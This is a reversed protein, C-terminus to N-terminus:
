KHTHLGSQTISGLQKEVCCGWYLHLLDPYVDPLQKLALLKLLRSPCDKLKRERLLKEESLTTPRLEVKHRQLVRDVSTSVLESFLLEKVLFIPIFIAGARIVHPFPCRRTFMFTELHSLLRHLLMRVGEFALWIEHDQCPETIRSNVKSKVPSKPRESEKSKSSWDQLLAVPSSLISRSIAQRVLCHLESFQRGSGSVSPEEGSALSVNAEGLTPSSEPASPPLSQVSESPLPFPTPLANSSSNNGTFQTEGGTSALKMIKYKKFMFSKSSHFGGENDPELSPSMLPSSESLCRTRERIIGPSPTQFQASCHSLNRSTLPPTYPPIYSATTPPGQAQSACKIPSTVADVHRYPQFSSSKHFFSPALTQTHYGMSQTPYGASTQMTCPMRCSHNTQPFFDKTRQTNAATYVSKTVQPPSCVTSHKTTNLPNEKIMPSTTLKPVKPPSGKEACNQIKGQNSPPTCPRPSKKLRLDLVTEEAPEKHLSNPKTHNGAVNNSSKNPTVSCYKPVSEQTSPESSGKEIEKTRVPSSSPLIPCTSGESKERHVKLLPFPHPATGELYDKYPALSFVDNIVPMPPSSPRNPRDSEPIMSNSHCQVNPSHVTADQKGPEQKEHSTRCQGFDGSDKGPALPSQRVNEANRKSQQVCVGVNNVSANVDRSNLGYPFQLPHRTNTSLLTEQVPPHAHLEGSSVSASRQSRQVAMKRSSDEHATVVHHDKRSRPSVHVLEKNEKSSNAWIIRDLPTFRSLPQGDAHVSGLRLDRKAPALQTERSILRSCVNQVDVPTTTILEEREVFSENLNKSAPTLGMRLDKNVQADRVVHNENSGVVGERALYPIFATSDSYNYLTSAHPYAVGTSSYHPRTHVPRWRSDQIAGPMYNHHTQPLPSFASNIRRGASIEGPSYLFLPNPQVFSSYRNIFPENHSPPIPLSLSANEKHRCAANLEQTSTPVPSKGTEPTSTHASHTKKTTGSPYIPSSSYALHTSNWEVAQAHLHPSRGHVGLPSLGHTGYGADMFSSPNVYVPRPMAIQPYVHPSPLPYSFVQRHQEMQLHSGSIDQFQSHNNSREAEQGQCRLSTQEARLANGAYQLYAATSSWPNSSSPREFGPVSYSLFSKYSLMEEHSTKVPHSVPCNQLEAELRSMKSCTVNDENSTQRKGAM